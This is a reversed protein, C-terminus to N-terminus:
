IASAKKQKSPRGPKAPSVRRNIKKELNAKFHESGLAWGKLTADRVLALENKSLGHEGLNRYVAEREFPTNGLAWYLPHDIVLPDSRIGAHHAYSSWCYDEPSGAIGCQVPQFEIYRSCTMFYWDADIVTAKYRGQWLTGSRNYKQNFYPVYYRGIWQMLRGLGVSDSPTALLHFQSPLLVYAHIAVKFQKAADRLWDLFVAYDADDRFVTQGDNGRQVVHHPQDPVVLRPLRAM